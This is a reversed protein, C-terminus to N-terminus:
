LKTLFILIIIIGKYTSLDGGKGSKMWINTDSTLDFHLYEKELHAWKQGASMIM